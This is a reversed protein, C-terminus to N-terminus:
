DGLGYFRAIKPRLDPMRCPGAGIRANLIMIRDVRPVGARRVPFDTSGVWTRFIHEQIVRGTVQGRHVQQGEIFITLELRIVIHM